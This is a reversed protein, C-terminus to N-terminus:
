VYLYLSLQKFFLDSYIKKSIAMLVKIVNCFTAWNWNTIKEVGYATALFNWFWDDISHIFVTFYGIKFIALKTLNYNRKAGVCCVELVVIVSMIPTPRDFFSWFLLGPTKEVLRQMKTLTINPTRRTLLVTGFQARM